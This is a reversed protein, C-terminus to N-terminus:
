QPESTDAAAGVTQLRLGARDLKRQDRQSLRIAPAALPRRARLDYRYGSALAHLLVDTVSVPRHARAHVIDSHINTGDVIMVTGRGLVELVGRDDILAATDEDIGLGLLAPNQAVLTLLRGIRDRERFHQDIIVGNILGFGAAMHAMRQKPSPGSRGASVMHTSLISAGASTGAIIAGNDYRAHIASAVRSGGLIAALRNQNGGTLYVGTAENVVEVSDGRNAAHRDPIYVVDATAAGLGLFLGKYYQGASEISSATPLIVIRANPGGAEAVFRSLIVKQNTKDEAGGIPMVLGRQPPSASTSPPSGGNDNNDM